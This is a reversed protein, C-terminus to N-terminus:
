DDESIFLNKVSVLMEYFVTNADSDFINSSEEKKEKEIISSSNVSKYAEPKKFLEETEIKRDM